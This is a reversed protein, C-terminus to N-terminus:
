AARPKEEAGGAVTATPVVEPIRLRGVYDGVTRAADALGKFRANATMREQRSTKLNLENTQIAEYLMAHAWAGDQLKWTLLYSDRATDPIRALGGFNIGGAVVTGTAFLRKQVETNALQLLDVAFDLVEGTIVADIPTASEDVTEETQEVSYIITAGADTYGLLVGDAPVGATLVLEAGSAPVTVGAYL